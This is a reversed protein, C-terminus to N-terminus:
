SSIKIFQYHQALGLIAQSAHDINEKSNIQITLRDQQSQNAVALQITFTGSVSAEYWVNQTEDSEKIGNLVAEEELDSLQYQCIWGLANIVPILNERYIWAQLNTSM